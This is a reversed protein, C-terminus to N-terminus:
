VAKCFLLSISVTTAVSLKRRGGARIYPNASWPCTCVCKCPLSCSWFALGFLLAQGAGGDERGM